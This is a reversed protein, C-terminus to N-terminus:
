AAAMNCWGLVCGGVGAAGSGGGSSGAGGQQARALQNRMDANASQMEGMLRAAAGVSCSILLCCSGLDDDCARDVIFPLQTVQFLRQGQLAHSTAAKNLGL